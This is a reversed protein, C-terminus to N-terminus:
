RIKKAISGLVDSDFDYVIVKVNAPFGTVPFRVTVNAPVGDKLTREYLDNPLKLNLQQSFRGVQKQDRSGAVVALELTYERGAPTIVPALKALGVSIEVVLMRTAGDMEERTNFGVPIDYVDVGTMLATAMRTYSLMERRSPLTLQPRAYYGHRYLVQAGKRTVKVEIRRYKGDQTSNTAYYGLLYGFRTADDIRKVAKDAYAYVSSIGGTLESLERLSRIAFSAGFGMTPISSTSALVPMAAPAGGTQITDVVVRANNAAAALAQDQSFTPLGLGFETVFVIHKEGEIFRLYEIGAYLKSLDQSSASSRVLFQELTGEVGMSGVPDIADTLFTGPPRTSNIEAQQLADIRRKNEEVTPTRENPDSVLTHAARLSPVAFVQDIDKQIRPPIRKDGYIARLGSFWEFLKTEIRDHERKFRELLEGLGAHNTTFDTARNWALIAVQDQPLVRDRLFEIMADVGKSPPQLRGRGLVLLFVRGNQPKLTDTRAAARLLGPADETPVATLATASFHAIAQPAGNETVVFESQKLDTIPKGNRDLVRVDLPVLTAGSRFVPPTQTQTQPTQAALVACAAVIALLKM